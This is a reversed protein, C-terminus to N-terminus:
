MQLSGWQIYRKKARFNKEARINSHFAENLNTGCGPPIDSLCGRSIHVKLNDIEHLAEPNLVHIGNSAIKKWKTVFNDINKTLVSPSPTPKKRVEGIDDSQRFVLRFELCCQYSCPHRKAVKKTVRVAHFLDLCVQVDERFVSTIKKKWHCCNDIYM